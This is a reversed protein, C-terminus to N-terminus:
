RDPKIQYYDLIYKAIKSFLPAASSASFRVDKPNNLKVLMVFKPNEVPAFGVFTHITKNGYGHKKKSAVQATGTKGAIYYGKVRALKAHGREVVNVLMGSLLAATKKSIVQNIQQPFKEDIKGNSYIIKDVIYPKMLKGNNAVAAYATVIQLPTVTIGQGFSATALYIKGKKELSSINGSVENPLQIGTKKGFGFNKVYSRFSQLGTKEAAWIAGTNVSKALVTNMDIIGHGGKTAFDSNKITYGDIKVEGNDKYVSDPTVKGSDIGAAMTITKFVSGPEYQNSIAPNNFVKVDKVKNYNNPDFDPMSCMALIKGTNPQIIIVTGGDAGHKLVSQRLEKCSVYEINRDITLVIDAGDKAPIIKDKNSIIIRGMADREAFIEGKTGSLTKDFFGEIGYLGKIKDGVYGYYGSIHCGNAREPYYRYNRMIWGIGRLKLDKIKKLQEENIHHAIPEYPDDKKTLIKLLEEKKEQFIKKKEYDLAAKDIEELKINNLDEKGKETNNYDINKNNNKKLKHNAYYNYDKKQISELYRKLKLEAEKDIKKQYLIKILDESVEDPKDIKKPVAYILAFKKNIALPFLEEKHSNSTDKIYITGRKPIIKKFIKHENDALAQYYHYDLIQLKALFFILLAGFLFVSLMLFYIRLFYSTNRKKRHKVIKWFRMFKILNIKSKLYFFCISIVFSYAKLTKNFCM